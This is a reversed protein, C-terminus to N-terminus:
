LNYSKHAGETRNGEANSRRAEKNAEMEDYERMTLWFAPAAVIMTVAPGIYQYLIQPDQSLPSLAMGLASGAASSLQTMAQLLSRM